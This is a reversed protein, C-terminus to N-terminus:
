VQRATDWMICSFGAGYFFLNNMPTRIVADSPIM